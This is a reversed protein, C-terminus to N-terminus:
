KKPKGVSKQNRLRKKPKSVKKDVKKKKAGVAKGSSKLKKPGQYHGELGKIKRRIFRQKLYREIGSMLNYEPSSILTIAVGSEGARGTRGIRHVYIEGRRPMEFNIVLDMGDIDIGRAAVDTAIMVGIQDRRMKSMVLNRQKQDRDGHLVGCPIGQQQLTGYILDAQIKSNCFVLCHRYTENQLLWTLLQMKHAKDDAFVIQQTISQHVDTVTNLEIKVPNTLLEDALGRLKKHSLTASYLQTQSRNQCINAIALIEEGFGMDLLRDAEDLILTSVENLDLLVRGLLESLRGPTAVLLDPPNKIIESQKKIDTGGGIHGFTLPTLRGLLKAQKLVQQALERTPLLILVRVGRGPEELLRELAPLLYAATKGSGTEASVFLDEGQMAPEFTEQQVPTPASFGLDNVAQALREDLEDFLM